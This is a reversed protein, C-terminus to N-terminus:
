SLFASTQFAAQPILSDCLVLPRDVDCYKRDNQPSASQALKVMSVPWKGFHGRISLRLGHLEDLFVQDVTGAKGDTLVVAQGLLEAQAAELESLITLARAQVQPM